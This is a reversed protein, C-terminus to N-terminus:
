GGERKKLKLFPLHSHPLFLPENHKLESNVTLRGVAIELGLSGEAISSSFLPREAEWLDSRASM